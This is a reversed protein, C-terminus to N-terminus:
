KALFFFLTNIYEVIHIVRFFVISRSHLWDGFIVSYAEKEIFHGTFVFRRFSYLETTRLSLLTVTLSYKRKPHLSHQWILLSIMVCTQSHVLFVGFHVNLLSFKYQIYYIGISSVTKFFYCFRHAVDNNSEVWFRKLFLYFLQMFKEIAIQHYM